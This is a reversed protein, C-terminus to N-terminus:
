EGRYTRGVENNQLESIGLAVLAKVNDTDTSCSSM